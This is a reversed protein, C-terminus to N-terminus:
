ILRHCDFDNGRWYWQYQWTKKEDNKGISEYVWFFSNLKPQSLMNGGKDKDLQKQRSLKKAEHWFYAVSCECKCIHCQCDVNYNFFPCVDSVQEIANTCAIKWKFCGLESTNDLCNMKYCMCALHKRLSKAPRPKTDKKHTLTDSLEKMKDTHWKVINRNYRTIDQIDFGILIIFRRECYAYNDMDFSKKNLKTLYVHGAM